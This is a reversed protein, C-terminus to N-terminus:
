LEDTPNKIWGACAMAHRGCAQFEALADKATRFTKTQLGYSVYWHTIADNVSLQVTYQGPILVEGIIAM